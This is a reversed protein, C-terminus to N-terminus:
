LHLMILLRSTINYHHQKSLPSHTYVHISCINTKTVVFYNFTLILNTTFKHFQLPSCHLSEMRIKKSIQNGVFLLPIAGPTKMHFNVMFLQFVGAGCFRGFTLARESTLVRRGRTGEVSM